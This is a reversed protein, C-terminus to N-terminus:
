SWFFDDQMEIQVIDNPNKVFEGVQPDGFDVFSVEGPPQFFFSFTSENIINANVLGYVYLPTDPDPDTADPNLMM